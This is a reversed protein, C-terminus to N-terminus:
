GLACTLSTIMGVCSVLFNLSVSLNRTVGLMTTTRTMIIMENKNGGKRNKKGKKKNWGPQQNGKHNSSQVSLVDEIQTTHSLNMAQGSAPQNISLSNM